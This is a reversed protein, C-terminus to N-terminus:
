KTRIEKPGFGPVRFEKEFAALAANRADRNKYNVNETYWLCEHSRYTEIFKLLDAPGFKLLKQSM